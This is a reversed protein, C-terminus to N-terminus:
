KKAQKGINFGILLATLALSIVAVVELITM